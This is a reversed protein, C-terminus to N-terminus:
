GAKSRLGAVVAGALTGIALAPGHINGAAILVAAVAVSAIVAGATRTAPRTRAVARDLASGLVGVAFLPSWWTALLAGLWLAVTSGAWGPMRDYRLSWAVLGALGCVAVSNGAGVPQWLAGAVQGTLGATLYCFIMTKRGVVQEAGAGLLALFILNSVTGLVGGDQVLLSSLWRWAEGQLVAPTRELTGLVAPSILGAVSVTGTLLTLGVALVPPRSFGAVRGFWSRGRLVAARWQPIM